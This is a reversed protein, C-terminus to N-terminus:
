QLSYLGDTLHSTISQKKNFHIYAM